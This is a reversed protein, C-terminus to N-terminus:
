FGKIVAYIKIGFVLAYMAALLVWFETTQRKKTRESVSGGQILNGFNRSALWWLWGYCSACYLSDWTPHWATGGHFAYSGGKLSPAHGPNLSRSNTSM